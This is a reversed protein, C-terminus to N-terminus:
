IGLLSVPNVSVIIYVEASILVLTFMKHKIVYQVYIYCIVMQGGVGDGNTFLFDSRWILEKRLM